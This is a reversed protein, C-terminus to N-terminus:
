VRKSLRVDTEIIRGNRNLVVKVTEGPQHAALANMFPRDANIVEGGFLTIVDGTQIGAAAAPGGAEVSAILAGDTATSRPLRARIETTLDRTEAGISPRVPSAGTEIIQRAVPLFRSAPLAFAIGEVPLGGSTERLVATPMGVFQGALNLLAGGSNGNNVAADTQILGDQRVDDLTRHRNLGSVVGVNVSGDFEALPNGIAIVTQGLKLANSDGAPIPALNGPSIQLVAVDTFPYDHGILIAPRVTGDSLTVKLVETNLVVHANTLIHGDTDLIIGSGVDQEVSGNATHRSSDIRVVGSRTKAAVDSIASTQEVTIPQAVAAGRGATKGASSSGADNGGAVLAVVIGAVLGGLLASGAAAGLLAWWGPGSRAPQDPIPAPVVPVRAPVPADDETADAPVPGPAVEAANIGGATGPMSWSLGDTARRERTQWSENETSM